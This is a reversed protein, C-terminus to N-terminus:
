IVRKLKKIRNQQKITKLLDNFKDDYLVQTPKYNLIIFNILVKINETDYNNKFDKYTLEIDNYIYLDYNIISINYCIKNLEKDYKFRIFLDTSFIDNYTKYIKVKKWIYLLIM